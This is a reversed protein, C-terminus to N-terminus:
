KGKAPSNKDTKEQKASELIGEEDSDHSGDSGEDLDHAHEHLNMKTRAENVYIADPKRVIIDNYNHNMMNLTSKRLSLYKQSELLNDKVYQRDQKKSSRANILEVIPDTLKIREIMKSVPISEAEKISVQTDKHIVSFMMKMAIKVNVKRSLLKDFDVKMGIDPMPPDIYEVKPRRSFYGGKKKGGDEDDDDDDGDNKRKKKKNNIPPGNGEEKGEEEPAGGEIPNGDEDLLPEEQEADPDEPMLKKTLAGGMTDLSTEIGLDSM